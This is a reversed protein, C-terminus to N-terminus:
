DTLRPPPPPQTHPPPRLPAPPPNFFLSHPSSSIFPLRSSLRRPRLAAPRPPQLPSRRPLLPSSSLLSLALPRAPSRATPSPSLPELLWFILAVEACHTPGMLTKCFARARSHDDEGDAIGKLRELPAVGPSAAPFFSSFYKCFAIM